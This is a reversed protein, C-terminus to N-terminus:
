QVKQKAEWVSLIDTVTPSLGFISDNIDYVTDVENTSDKQNLVLGQPIVCFLDEGNAGAATALVCRSAYGGVLVVTKVSRNKLYSALDTQSFSNYRLKHIVKENIRPKTRGYIEYSTSGPKVISANAGFVPKIMDSINSPSEEVGEAMQTWVVEVGALRVKEIFSDISELVEASNDPLEKNRLSVLQPDFYGAQKDIVLLVTTSPNLIVQIDM